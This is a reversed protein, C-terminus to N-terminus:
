LAVRSYGWTAGELTMASAYGLNIQIWQQAIVKTGSRVPCSGHVASPPRSWTLM